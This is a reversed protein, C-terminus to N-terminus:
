DNLKNYVWFYSIQNWLTNFLGWILPPVHLTPGVTSISVSISASIILGSFEQIRDMLVNLKSVVHVEQTLPDCLKLLDGCPLM